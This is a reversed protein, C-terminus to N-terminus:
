LNDAIGSELWRKVQRELACSSMRLDDHVDSPIAVSHLQGIEDLSKV